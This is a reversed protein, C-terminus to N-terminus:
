TSTRLVAFFPACLFIISSYSLLYLLSRYEAPYTYINRRFIGQIYVQVCRIGQHLYDLSLILFKNQVYRPFFIHVKKILVALEVLFLVFFLLRYYLAHSLFYRAFSTFRTPYFIIYTFFVRGCNIGFKMPQGNSFKIIAEGGYPLIHTPTQTHAHM